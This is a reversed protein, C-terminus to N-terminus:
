VEPFSYPHSDIANSPHLMLAEVNIKFSGQKNWTEVLQNVKKVSWLQRLSELFHRDYLGSRIEPVLWQTITSFVQEPTHALCSCRITGETLEAVLFVQTSNM